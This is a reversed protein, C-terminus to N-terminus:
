SKGSIRALETLRRACRDAMDALFKLSEAHDVMEQATLPKRSLLALDSLFSIGAALQAYETEINGTLDKQLKLTRWTEIAVITRDLQEKCTCPMDLRQLERHIQEIVDPFPESRAEIGPRLGPTDSDEM